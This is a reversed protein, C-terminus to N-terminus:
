VVSTPHWSSALAMALCTKDTLVRAFGVLRGTIRNVVTVVVDSGTVVGHTETDTRGATWGASAFLKTLQPVDIGEVDYSVHNPDPSTRTNM